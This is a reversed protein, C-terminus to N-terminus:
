ALQCPQGVPLASAWLTAWLSPATHVAHRIPPNKPPGVEHGPLGNICPDWKRETPLVTVLHKATHPRQHVDRWSSVNCARM